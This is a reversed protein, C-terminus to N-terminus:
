ACLSTLSKKMAEQYVEQIPVGKRDRGAFLRTNRQFRIDESVKVRDERIEDGSGKGGPLKKRTVALQSGGPNHDGRLIVETLKERGEGRHGSCFGPRGKM